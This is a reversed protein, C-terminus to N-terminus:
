NAPPFHPTRLKRATILAPNHAQAGSGNPPPPPTEGKALVAGSGAVVLSLVVHGGRRGSLVARRRNRDLRARCWWPVAVRAAGIVTAAVFSALGSVAGYLPARGAGAEHVVPRRLATSPGFRRCRHRVKATRRALNLHYTRWSVSFM